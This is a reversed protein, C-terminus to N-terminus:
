DRDFDREDRAKSGLGTLSVVGGSPPSPLGPLAIGIQVQMPPQVIVPPPNPQDVERLSLLAHMAPLHKGMKAAREAAEIWLEVFRARHKRLEARCDTIIEAVQPSALARDVAERSCRLTRAIQAVSEGQVRWRAIREKEEGTLRRAPSGIVDRTSTAKRKERAM